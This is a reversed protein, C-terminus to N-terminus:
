SSRGPPHLGRAAHMAEVSEIGAAADPEFGLAVAIVGLLGVLTCVDQIARKMLLEALAGLPTM